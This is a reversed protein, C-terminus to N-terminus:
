FRDSSTTRINFSLYTDGDLIADALLTSIDVTLTSYGGAIGAFNHFLSGTSWEDLSVTGDGAFSYVDLTGAPSNPDINSIGLNLTSGTVDGSLGSIDFHAITRDETPNKVASFTLVLSDSRLGLMETPAITDASATSATLSIAIGIAVSCTAFRLLYNM